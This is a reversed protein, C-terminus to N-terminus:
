GQLSTRAARRVAQDPDGEALNALRQQKPSIAIHALATLAAFRVLAEADELAASLWEAARPARARALADIVARRVDLRPDRLGRAVRDLQGEAARALAAVCADRHAPLAVLALLADVAEPVPLHGLVDIATAAEPNTFAAAVRQVAAVAEARGSAGLAGLAAVRRRSDASELAAFLPPLADPHGTAGLAALAACALDDEVAVSFSVLLPLADAGGLSGLAEVAAVRVQMATDAQALRRLAELAQSQRQRGVSRAAAYRVWPAADALAEQLLPWADAAEVQGLARAAAARVGASEDHLARALAPLVRDDELCSLSEVAARRVSEQVDRCCELLRAACEPYGAYGAIRVASERVLPGPDRLLRSMDAAMDPPGLSNLASVAARRVTVDEHGILALLPAYARRDGTMALAGAVAVVLKEDGRLVELLAPVAATDGIRGLALVAAQRTELDDARLQEILLGTVRPGKRVLAEVAEARAAPRGLLQALPRELAPSELWGLVRALAALDPGAAEDLAAILSQFGPAAIVQRAASAVHSGQGYMEECHDHLRALVRAITTAPTGPTNLLAAAPAIAEEGGLRGLAELTATQLFEDALLPVLRYVVRADGISALADLAPFALAFDRSEAIAALADVAASARLRGLAEIAHYRVNPDSDDLARMLAPIARPNAQAGLTLAACTRLNPNPDTLFTTLVGLTDVGVRSLVQVAGNLVGLDLHDDRLARLVEGVAGRRVLGQVAEERVRWSKDALARVLLTVAEPAEKMALEAVAGLRVREDPCTLLETTTTM